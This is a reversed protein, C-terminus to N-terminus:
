SVRKNRTPLVMLDGRLGGGKTYAAGRMTDRAISLSDVGPQGQCGGCPSDQCVGM